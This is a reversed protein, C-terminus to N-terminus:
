EPEVPLPLHRRSPKRIRAKRRVPVPHLSALAEARTRKRRPLPRELSPERSVRRGLARIASDLQEAPNPCVPLPLASAPLDPLRLATKTYPPPHTLWHKTVDTGLM